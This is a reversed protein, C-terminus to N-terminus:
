IILKRHKNGEKIIYLGKPLSILVNRYITDVDDYPIIKVIEGSIRYITIFGDDKPFQSVKSSGSIGMEIYRDELPYYYYAKISEIKKNNLDAVSQPVLIHYEQSTQSYVPMIQEYEYSENDAVIELKINDQFNNVTSNKVSLAFARGAVVHAFDNPVEKIEETLFLDPNLLHNDPVKIFAQGDTVIVDVSVPADQWVAEWDEDLDSSSYLQLSYHGSELGVPLKVSVPTASTFTNGPSLGYRRQGCTGLLLNDKVLKWGYTITAKSNASNRLRCSLTFTSGLPITVEKLTIDDNLVIPEESICAQLPYNQYEPTPFCNIVMAQSANYCVGRGGPYSGSQNIINIDTFKDGSGGHGFNIHYNGDTDMGDIVFMHDSQSTNFYWTGRYFVPHRNMLQQNLMELWEATSYHKRHLYRSDPSIHLNHQLGYLMRAYNTVSTSNGYRVNMAVGCAFMLDAIAQVQTDSYKGTVYSDLINDWDFSIGDLDTTYATGGLNYAGNGYAKGPAKYYQLIQAMATPGCGTASGDPCRNNYPATQNYTATLMAPIEQAMVSFSALALTIGVCIRSMEKSMVINISNFKM